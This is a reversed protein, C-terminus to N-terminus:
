WRLRRFPRNLRHRSRLRPPSGRPGARRPRRTSKRGGACPPLRPGPIPTSARGGVGILSQAVAPPMTSWASARRNAPGGGRDLRNWTNVQPDDGLHVSTATTEMGSSCCSAPTPRRLGHFAGLSGRARRRGSQSRVLLQHRFRLGPIPSTPYRHRRHGRLPDNALSPDYALSPVHTATGIVPPALDVLTPAADYPGPTM